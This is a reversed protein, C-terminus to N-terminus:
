DQVIAFLPQDAEVMAGDVALVAHVRGAVDATVATFLKMVEILCIEAGAEVRSGIEVYVDAGPKPARYFTGLNPARIIIANAPLDHLTGIADAQAAPTPPAATVHKPPPALRPQPTDVPGREMEGDRPDNSLLLEFDANRVHLIRVGSRKFEEMLRLVEDIPVQDASPM